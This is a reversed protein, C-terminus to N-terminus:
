INRCENGTFLMLDYRMMHLIRKRDSMELPADDFSLSDDLAVSSSEFSTAPSVVASMAYSEAADTAQISSVDMTPPKKNKELFSGLTRKRSKKTRKNMQSKRVSDIWEFDAEADQEPASHDMTSMFFHDNPSDTTKTVDSFCSLKSQHYDIAAFLIDLGSMANNDTTETPMM